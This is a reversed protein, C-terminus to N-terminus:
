TTTREGRLIRADRRTASSSGAVCRRSARSAMSHRPSSTGEVMVTWTPMYTPHQGPVTVSGLMGLLQPFPATSITSRADFVGGMEHGHQGDM